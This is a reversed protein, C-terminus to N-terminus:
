QNQKLHLRLPFPAEHHSSISQCCPEFGATTRGRCCGVQHLHGIRVQDSLQEKRLISAMCFVNSLILTFDMAFLLGLWTDHTPIVIVDVFLARHRLIVLGLLDVRKVILWGVKRFGREVPGIGFVWDLLLGPLSLWTVLCWEVVM